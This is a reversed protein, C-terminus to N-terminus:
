FIMRQLRDKLKNYSNSSDVVPIVPIIFDFFKTRDKSSFTDDKLLYVFRVIRDKEVKSNILTNIERLKEFIYNNNYRDMDEFIFTDIKSFRFIYLVENLYKDFFSYNSEDFVEIEFDKVVAKKILQKNQQLLLINYVVYVLVGLFCIFTIIQFFQTCLFLLYSCSLENSLGKILDKWNEFCINVVLCIMAIFSLLIYKKIKKMLKRKIIFRTQPINDPDIQQVLQNIIKGELINVM